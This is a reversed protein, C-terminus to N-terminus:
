PPQPNERIKGRSPPSPQRLPLAETQMLKGLKAEQQASRGTTLLQVRANPTQPAHSASTGDVVTKDVRGNDREQHRGGLSADRQGSNPARACACPRGKGNPCLSPARYVPVPGSTFAGRKLQTCRPPEDPIYWWLWWLFLLLWWLWWLWWLWTLVVVVVVM